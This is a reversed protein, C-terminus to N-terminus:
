GRSQRENDPAPGAAPTHASGGGHQDTSRPEPLRWACGCEPCITVGDAGTRRLGRIDYGCHPCRSNRLMVSCTRRARVTAAAMWAFCLGAVVGVLVPLRAQLMALLGGSGTVTVYIFQVLFLLIFPAMVLFGFVVARRPWKDLGPGIERTIEALTDAPIVDHRRLRHMVYPDILKVTRGRADRISRTYKLPSEATRAM